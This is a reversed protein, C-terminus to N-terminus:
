GFQYIRKTFEIEEGNVKISEINIFWGPHSIEANKIGLATFAVGSAAKEETGTFDLAVKYIGPHTVTAKTAAVGTDVPDGFYTYEWATDAFMIYAEASPQAYDFTVEVTEVSDFLEKDIIIWGADDVEGDYSRANWPLEGVWENYINM